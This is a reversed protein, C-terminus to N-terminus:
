RTARPSICTKFTVNRIDRSRREFVSINRPSSRTKKVGVAILSNAFPVSGRFDAHLVLFLAHKSPHTEFAALADGLLMLIGRALTCKEEGLSRHSWDRDPRRRLFGRKVRPIICSIKIIEQLLCQFCAIIRPTGAHKGYEPM